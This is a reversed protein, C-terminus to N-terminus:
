LDEKNIEQIEYFLHEGSPNNKGDLFGMAMPILWKLNPIIPERKLQDPSYLYCDDTGTFPAYYLEESLSTTFLHIIGEYVTPIRGFYEWDQVDTLKGTEEKFERVMANIPQEDKEIKGGVGNLLGKQWEPSTKKVLIISERYEDFVFALVYKKKLDDRM